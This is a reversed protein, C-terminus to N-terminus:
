CRINASLPLSEQDTWGGFRYQSTVFVTTSEGDIFRAVNDLERKLNAQFVAESGNARWYVLHDTLAAIPYCEEVIGDLPPAGVTLPRVVINQGYYFTEQTEPGIRTQDRMWIQLFGEYAIGPLKCFIAIQSFGPTREGDPSPRTIPLVTSESVAYGAIRPAIEELAAEFPARDHAANLWFSVAADPMPRLSEFRLARGPAVHDDVVNIQIRGAGLEGLRRAVPGLLTANFAAGADNSDRWVLYILKEVFGRGM